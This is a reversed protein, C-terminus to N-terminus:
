PADREWDGGGLLQRATGVSAPNAGTETAFEMVLAEDSALYDL